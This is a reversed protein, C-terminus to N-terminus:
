LVLHLCALLNTMSQIIVVNIVGEVYDDNYLLYVINFQLYTRWHPVLTALIWDCNSYFVNVFQTTILNPLLRVHQLIVLLFM